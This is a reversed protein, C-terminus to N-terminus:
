ANDREMIQNILLETMRSVGMKQLPIFYWAPDLNRHFNAQMRVKTKNQTMPEFYIKISTLNLYTSFYTSDEIVQMEIFHDEVRTLKITASGEHTNTIFWRHYRTYIKHADGQKLSSADIQYPMPFIDLMWDREVNLDIPQQMNAKIQDVSLSLEKTVEIHHNREFSLQPSTGEFSVAIILIPLLQIYHKNQKKRKYYDSVGMFLYALGACFIYIPIFFVVCIFGERLLISSAFLVALALVIHRFFDEFISMEDSVKPLFRFLLLSVSYPLLMYVLSSKSLNGIYLVQFILSFLGIILTVKITRGRQSNTQLLNKIKELM